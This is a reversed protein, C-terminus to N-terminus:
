HVAAPRGREAALAAERSVPLAQEIVERLPAFQHRALIARLKPEVTQRNRMQLAHM